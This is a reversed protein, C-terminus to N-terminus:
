TKLIPFLNIDFEFDLTTNFFNFAIIKEKNRINKYENHTTKKMETSETDLYFFEISIGRILNLLYSM